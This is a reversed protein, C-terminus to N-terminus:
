HTVVMRYRATNARVKSIAIDADELPVAETKAAIGHRAALELMEAIRERGGIASGTIAVERGILAFAPVTVPASPVGVFCFTGRVALINLWASWDLDGSVTNLLFDISGSAAEMADDDTSLVFRDAGLERAEAEKSPSRSFATVHAGFAAGFQLALHGLGGIGIVGLRTTASVGHTVLPSYVTIGACLLPAAGESDLGDPIAIAYRADVQVREAFGGHAGVITAQTAVCLNDLSRKCPDCTGCSSRQWGVGVRQGIQLDRVDPARDIVVGIVEHGPVLPFTSRGWDDDIMHIDSHCVGCHTVRVAVEGRQLPGAAFSFAELRAGRGPACRAHVLPM